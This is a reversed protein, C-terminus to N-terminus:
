DGWQVEAGHRLIRQRCRLYTAGGLRKATKKVSWLLAQGACPIWAGRALAAATPPTTWRRITFRGRLTLGFVRRVSATPESTFVDSFGARAAAEAVRPAFDGGPISAASPATGLIESLRAHSRAWEDVLRPWSCHGIRLPHSCSHSGITHGRRHLARIGAEDLFGRAGIYDTTVFFHGRWGRRELAEAAYLASIGGDDFTLTPPVDRARAIASLHAEFREPTVKYIAADRGPFGSTEESGSPVVDHYMLTM